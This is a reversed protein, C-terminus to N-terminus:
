ASSAWRTAPPTPSTTLGDWFADFDLVAYPNAVVFAVLAVVGAILSGACRAPRARRAGRVARGDAALLPLLM